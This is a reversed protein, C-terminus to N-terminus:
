QQKLGDDGALQQRLLEDGVAKRQLLHHTSVFRKAMGGLIMRKFDNQKNWSSKEFQAITQCRRPRAPELETVKLEVEVWRTTLPIIIRCSGPSRLRLLPSDTAHSALTQALWHCQFILIHKMPSFYDHTETHSGSSPSNFITPSPPSSNLKPRQAPLMPDLNIRM